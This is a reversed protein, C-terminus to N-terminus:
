LGIIFPGLITGSTTKSAGNATVTITAPGVGLIFGSNITVQSGVPIDVTGNTRKGLFVVKGDVEISWQVTDTNLLKPQFIYDLDCCKIGWPRSGVAYSGINTFGNASNILVDVCNDRHCTTAIDLRGDDNFDDTDLRYPHKSVSIHQYPNFNGDGTGKFTNIYSGYPTSSAYSTVAFDEFPDDSFEYVVISHPNEGVSINKFTYFDGSGDNLLISVTNDDFNTVALDNHYDDNFLGISVDEPGNGVPFNKQKPFYGFGDGYLVTIKADGKNTVVIDENNDNDLDATAIGCVGRGLSIDNKTYQKPSNSNSLLVSISGPENNDPYHGYNSVVFDYLDDDNFYGTGIDHPKFGLHISTSDPYDDFEDGYFIELAGNWDPPDYNNDDYYTVAIDYKGDNNFDEIFIDCPSKGNLPIDEGKFSVTDTLQDYNGKLITIDHDDYNAVVIDKGIWVEDVTVTLPDSWFSTAGHEDCAQAKVTYTGATGWSHSLSGVHGSAGLATWSSYDHSGDADWDFRYQVQDGDPDTASTRYTGSVGTNLATPGSPPDPQDPSGGGGSLYYVWATGKGVAYCPAGIVLVGNDISLSSGLLETGYSKWIDHIRDWNGNTCSYVHVKGHRNEWYPAGIAVYTDDLCVSSGFAGPESDGIKDEYQNMWSTGVNELVASVGIGGRIDKIHIGNQREYVYAASGGGTGVIAYNGDISVSCGFNRGKADLLPSTIRIKKVWDNNKDLEFIYTSGSETGKEDDRYAGIIAENDRLDVSCGFGKVNLIINTDDEYLKTYPITVWSDSGSDYKFIYAAGTMAGQLPEAESSGVIAYEGDISVSCGYFSDFRQDNNDLTLEMKCVWSKKNHDHEFIYAAGSHFNGGSAGVVAFDGSLSVSCGFFDGSNGGGPIELPDGYEEWDGSVSNKKFIYAQGKSGDKGKAGILIFNGDVDVSCGFKDNYQSNLHDIEILGPVSSEFTEGKENLTPINISAVPLITSVILLTM